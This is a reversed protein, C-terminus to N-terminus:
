LPKLLGRVLSQLLKAARRRVIGDLARGFAAETGWKLGTKVRENELPFLRKRRLLGKSPEPGLGKRIREQHGRAEQEDQTAGNELNQIGEDTLFQITAQVLGLTVPLGVTMMSAITKKVIRGQVASIWADSKANLLGLQQARFRGTREGIASALVAGVSLLLLRAYSM